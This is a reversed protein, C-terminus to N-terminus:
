KAQVRPLEFKKTQVDPMAPQESYLHAIPASSRKLLIEAYAELKAIKIDQDTIKKELKPIVDEDLREVVAKLSGRSFFMSLIVGILATLAAFYPGLAKLIEIKTKTVDPM